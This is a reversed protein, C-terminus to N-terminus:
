VGRERFDGLAAIMRAREAHDRLHAPPMTRPRDFADHRFNAREHGFAYLLDIEDRLVCGVVAHVQPLLFGARPLLHIRGATDGKHM